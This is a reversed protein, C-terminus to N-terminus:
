RPLARWATVLTSSECTAGFPNVTFSQLTAETRGATVDAVADTVVLCDYGLDNASRLTSSVCCDATVGTLVLAHVGSTRLHEELDTGVFASHAPKDVVLEDPRPAMAAVIETGAAGRIEHRGWRTDSGIPFGGLRSRAQKVPPCDTLDERYAERTHVVPVGAARAAELVQSARAMARSIGEMDFGMGDFWSGPACYMVQWDICMLTIQHPELPGLVPWQYPQAKVSVTTVQRARAAGSCAHV